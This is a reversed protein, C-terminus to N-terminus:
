FLGKHITNQHIKIEQSWPPNPPFLFSVSIFCEWLCCQTWAEQEKWLTLWGCCFCVEGWSCLRTRSGTHTSWPPSTGLAWACGSLVTLLGWSWKREDPDWDGVEPHLKELISRGHKVLCTRPLTVTLRRLGRLTWLLSAPLRQGAERREDLPCKGALHGLLHECKHHNSKFSTKSFNIM